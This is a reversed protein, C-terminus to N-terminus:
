EDELEVGEDTVLEAIYSAKSLQDLLCNYDNDRSQETLYCCYTIDDENEMILVIQWGHGDNDHKLQNYSKFIKTLYKVNIIEDNTKIFM